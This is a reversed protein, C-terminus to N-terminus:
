SDLPESEEVDGDGDRHETRCLADGTLESEPMVTREEKMEMEDAMEKAFHKGRPASGRSSGEVDVSEVLAGTLGGKPEIRKGKGMSGVLDRTDADATLEGVGTEGGECTTVRATCGALSAAATNEKGRAMSGDYGAAGVEELHGGLNSSESSQGSRRYLLHAAVATATAIVTGLMAASLSSTLTVLFLTTGPLAVLLVLGLHGGPVRYPRELDPRATRLYYFAALELATQLTYLFNGAHAIASLFPRYSSVLIRLTPFVSRSFRSINKSM